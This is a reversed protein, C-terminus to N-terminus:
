EVTEPPLKFKANVDALQVAPLTKSGEPILHGIVPLAEPWGAALQKGTSFRSLARMAENYAEILSAYFKRKAQSFEVVDDCLTPDEKPSVLTLPGNRLPVPRAPRAEATALTGGAHNSRVAYGQDVDLGMGNVRVYVNHREEFTGPYKAQLDAIMKRQEAPYLANYVRDFLPNARAVLQKAEETYRHRVLACAMSERIDKSLRTM